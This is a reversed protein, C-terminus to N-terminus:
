PASHQATGSCRTVSSAAGVALGIIGGARAGNGTGTVTGVVLGVTGGVFVGVPAATGGTPAGLLVGGALAGIRMGRLGSIVGGALAGTLRGTASGTMMASVTTAQTCEVRRRHESQASPEAVSTADTASASESLQTHIEHGRSGEPCDSIVKTAGDGGVNKPCLGFPDAFNIPDGNAYGYLNLGGAM